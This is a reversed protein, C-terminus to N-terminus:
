FPLDDTVEEKTNENKTPKGDTFYFDDVVITPAVRKNGDKDEYHNINLSGCVIIKQGKTTYNKIIEGLKSFAICDIFDTTEKDTKRPVALTFTYVEKKNKTMKMEVDKTLRGMIEIKNM